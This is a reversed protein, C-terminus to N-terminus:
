RSPGSGGVGVGVVWRAATAAVEVAPREGMRGGGVVKAHMLPMTRPADHASEPRPAVACGRHWVQLLLLLLLLLLVGTLLVPPPKCAALSSRVCGDVVGPWVM